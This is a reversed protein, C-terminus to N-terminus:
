SSAKLFKKLDTLWFRIDWFLVFPHRLITRLSIEFYYLPIDWLLVFSYRLITCLSIEFWYLLIDWFLEFPYRLITCLSIEFCYLLIDWFLVFPYRLITCVSLVFCYLLGFTAGGRLGGRNLYKKCHQLYVGRNRSSSSKNLFYSVVFLNTRRVKFRIM